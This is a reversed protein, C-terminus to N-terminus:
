PSKVSLLAIGGVVAIAIAIAVAVLILMFTAWAKREFLENSEAKESIKRALERQLNAEARAEANELAHLQAVRLRLYLAKASQESGGSEAFAKAWLGAIPGAAALEDVVKSYLHEDIM